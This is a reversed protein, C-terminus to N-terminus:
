FATVALAVAEPNIVPAVLPTVKVFKVGAPLTKKWSEKTYSGLALTLPSSSFLNKFTVEELLNFGNNVADDIYKQLEVQDEFFTCQVPISYVTETEVSPEVAKVHIKISSADYAIGEKKIEPTVFTAWARPSQSQVYFFINDEVVMTNFVNDPYDTVENVVTDLTLDETM